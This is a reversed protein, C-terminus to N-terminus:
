ELSTFAQSASPVYMFSLCIGTVIQIIFCTLTASGLAYWWSHASAPVRHGATSEFLRTLHLREDVWVAVSQMVKM